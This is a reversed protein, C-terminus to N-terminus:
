GNRVSRDIAYLLTAGRDRVWDMEEGKQVLHVTGDILVAGKIHAVGAALRERDAEVAERAYDQMAEDDHAVPYLGTRDDPPMVQGHPVPPLSIQGYAAAVPEGVPQRAALAAQLGARMAFFTGLEPADEPARSQEDWNKDYAKSYAHVMADTVNM